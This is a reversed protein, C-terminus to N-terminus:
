SHLQYSSSMALRLLNSSYLFHNVAVILMLNRRRWIMMKSNLSNSPSLCIRLRLNLTSITNRPDLDLGISSFARLPILSALDRLLHYPNEFPSEFTFRLLFSISLLNLRFDPIYLVNKLVLAENLKVTGIGAIKVGIGTPLTVARNLSDSLNMFLTKDHCVHHTAGSDIIWSQSSLASGIAGLAGVFCLTSSSFAMGPLSTITGGSSPSAAVPQPSVQLQSNFYAIVGQIQDKSLTNIIEPLNNDNSGAPSMALQAVVPKNQNNQPKSASFGQKDSQQKSKHKFGIPYGHIKYCTEVTHGNYGCHSCIPRNPNNRYPASAANVSPSSDSVTVNFASANPVPNFSCQSHDKAHVSKKSTSKCCDCNGCTTVCDAGDLEDLADEIQHLLYSSRTFLDKWIESADNFRLISKYIQKSVSNLLWSKVMSNCRCWIRYHRHTEIPRSLSGDVFAIKNKAELAITLAIRWNDFNSGDLVESILSIGPNDGSTLHFPSHISDISETFLDPLIPTRQPSNPPSDEPISSRRAPASTRSGRRIVKRGVVM